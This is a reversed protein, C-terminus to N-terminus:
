QTFVMNDSINNPVKGIIVTQAVCVKTDFSVETSYSPILASANVKLVIFIRHNVQNIGTHEFDSEIDTEVYAIPTIRFRLKPGKNHLFDIYTINGIPIYIDTQELRNVKEIVSATIQSKLRNVELTNYSLLSVDGKEDRSVTILDGYSLPTREMQEIIAINAAQTVLSQVKYCATEIVLPRLRSDLFIFITTFLGLLIFLRNKM